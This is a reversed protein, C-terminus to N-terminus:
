FQTTFNFLFFDFSFLNCIISICQVVKENPFGCFFTRKKTARGSLGKAGGGMPKTARGSLFSSKKRSGKIFKVIFIILLLCPYLICPPTMYGVKILVHYWHTIRNPGIIERNWHQCYSHARSNGSRILCRKLFLEFSWDIYIKDIAVPTSCLFKEKWGLM